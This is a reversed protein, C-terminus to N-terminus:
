TRAADFADWLLNMDATASELEDQLRSIVVAMGAIHAYDQRAETAAAQAECAIRVATATAAVRSVAAILPARQIQPSQTDSM